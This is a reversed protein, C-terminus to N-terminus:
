PQDPRPRDPNKTYAAWYPIHNGSRTSQYPLWFAPASPDTGPEARPDIATVWIQPTASDQGENHLRNGYDRLSSFAMWLRDRSDSPSWKPWSNGLGPRQNARALEVVAGGDSPVALLETSFNSMGNGGGGPRARTFAILGGLPSYAPRDYVWDPPPEALIEPESWTDDVQHWQAVRGVVGADPIPNDLGAAGIIGTIKTGGWSWDPEGAVTMEPLPLREIEVGTEVELIVLQGAAGAVLRLNDPAFSPFYGTVGNPDYYPMSPTDIPATTLSGFPPFSTWTYAIRSGDRSLAHCAPCAIQPAVQPTVFPEPETDGAALRLIGSDATSWYYIAGQLISSAVNLTVPEGVCVAEGQAGVGSLTATMSGGSAQQLVRIWQDGSPTTGDGTAYWSVSREGSDITLRFADHGNPDWQFELGIMNRPFVTEPEPYVWGPACDAEEPGDFREVTGEPLDPPVVDESPSRIELAAVARQDGLEAIIEGSGLRGASTFTGTEDVLGLDSPEVTWRITAPDVVEAPGDPVVENVVFVQTPTSGPRLTLIAFTPDITIAHVVGVDGVQADVSTDLLSVDLRPGDEKFADLTVSRRADAEADKVPSINSDDCASLLTLLGALGIWRKM